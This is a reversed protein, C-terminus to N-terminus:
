SLQQAVASTVTLPVVVDSPLYWTVAPRIRVNRVATFPLTRPKTWPRRVAFLIGNMGPLM